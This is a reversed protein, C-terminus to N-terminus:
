SKRDKSTLSIAQGQIGGSDHENGRGWVVDRM